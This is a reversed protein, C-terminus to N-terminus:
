DHSLDKWDIDLIVTGELFMCPHTCLRAIDSITERLDITPLTTPWLPQVAIPVDFLDKVDTTQPLQM